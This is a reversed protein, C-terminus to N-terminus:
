ANINGHSTRILHGSSGVDVAIAESGYFFQAGASVADSALAEVVREIDIVCVSPIFIGGLAHVPAIRQVGQPTMVFRFPINQRRGQRWLHWLSDVEKWLGARISGYPAAILMGTKLLGIGREDAYQIMLASGERSLEAKLTGPTEHFGSHIVRSNLGSIEKCLGTHKEVAAVSLGRQAAERAIASGVVGGAGIICVDFM